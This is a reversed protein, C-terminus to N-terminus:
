IKRGEILLTKRVSPTVMRGICFAKHHEACWSKGPLVPANCFLTPADDNIAARCGNARLDMLTVGTEFNGLQEFSHRTLVLPVDQEVRASFLEAIFHAERKVQKAADAHDARRAAMVVQDRTLVLGYEAEVDRVIQDAAVGLRVLRAALRKASRLRDRALQDAASDDLPSLM